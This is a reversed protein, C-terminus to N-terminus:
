TSAGQVTHTQKAHAWRAAFNRVLADFGAVTLSTAAKMLRVSRRAPTRSITGEIRGFGALWHQEWDHRKVDCRRGTLLASM